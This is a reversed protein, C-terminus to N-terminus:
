STRAVMRNAAMNIAESPSSTQNNPSSRERRRTSFVEHTQSRGGNRYTRGLFHLILQLYGHAGARVIIPVAHLRCNSRTHLRQAPHPRVDPRSMPYQDLGIQQCCDVWLRCDYRMRRSDLGDDAQHLLGPPM